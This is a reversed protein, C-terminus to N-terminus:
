STSPGHAPLHTSHADLSWTELWTWASLIAMDLRQVSKIDMKSARAM